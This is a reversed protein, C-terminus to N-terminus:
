PVKRFQRVWLEQGHGYRHILQFHQTVWTHFAMLSPRYLRGTFFLVAHVQPQSAENILQQSMIYGTEIRVASTDVLSPPTSRDALGAIFQADTIVLQDPAIANRLDTAVIAEQQALGDTSHITANHYYIRDQPVALLITVLLILLSILTISKALIPKYAPYRSTDGIGMVALAIFPPILAVLHHPFLPVLRWLSYVTSLLWAVLPLVRWDRRLLAAGIGYLAALALVSTLLQQMQLMSDSLSTLQSAATHFTIVSQIMEHYSGLFPLLVLVMIVICSAIGAIPSRSSALRTGPQKQWIQWLRALMLLAIPVVSSLALFKCLIGLSLTMGSLAALCLSTIGEPHEWWLYALGVALLSFAVTPAEAQLTQSEALYLPNVLLLLLAAIAGVRRSLAKGLLFAGLLGLLSILAVGLRASWLTGGFLAFFPYISLLFFPPQSYFIQQYLAHGASMARLSQWYVGEDYGDRDFPVDLKYLRMGLAIAFLALTVGWLLVSQWRPSFAQAGKSARTDDDVITSTSM